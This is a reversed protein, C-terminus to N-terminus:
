SLKVKNKSGKPRGRGRKGVPASTSEFSSEGKNKSGKPRGRGRRESKLKALFSDKKLITGREVQFPCELNLHTFIEKQEKTLEDLIQATEFFKIKLHHMKKIASKASIKSNSLCYSISSYLITALFSILLVGRISDVTHSRLPLISAYTKSVDFTEEIAQRTYYLPLVEDTKYDNSTLIIFKGAALFKVNIKDKTDTELDLKKVINSTDEAARYIDHMLFAYLNLGHFEFPIKKCFLAREGYTIANPMSVLDNGYEKLLQKFEKRHLPMRTMFPINAKTLEIINNLASFGADMIVIEIKINHALLMNITNILTTNDIINGAVFRFFLPLKTKQDVIYILRIENCTTGNHNNIATIHTRIDNPLGTSDILLPISIQQSLAKNKTTHALYSSFFQRYVEEKGLRAHFESIRPSDLNASPYLVRAYSNSHWDAAYTYADSELLRFSVLAKLTDKSEPILNDLVTELGTRKLIQDSMWVDGFDLSKVIPCEYASLSLSEPPKGFGKEVSFTFYGRERSRFLGLGEDILRGLHETDHRVKGDKVYTSKCYKGYTGSAKRELFLYGPLPQTFTKKEPQLSGDPTDPM